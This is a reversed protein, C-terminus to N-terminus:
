REEGEAKEKGELMFGKLAFGLFNTTTTIPLWTTSDIGHQAACKPDTQDKESSKPEKM